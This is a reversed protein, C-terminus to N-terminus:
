HAHEIGLTKIDTKIDELIVFEWLTKSEFPFKLFKKRVSLGFHLYLLCDYKKLLFLYPLVWM